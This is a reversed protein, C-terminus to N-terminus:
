FTTSKRCTQLWDGISLLEELRMVVFIRDRPMYSKWWSKGIVTLSVRTSTGAQASHTYMSASRQGGISSSAHAHSRYGFILQEDHPAKPRLSQSRTTPDHLAWHILDYGKDRGVFEM